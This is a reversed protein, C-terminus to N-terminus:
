TLLDVNMKVHVCECTLSYIQITSTLLDVLTGIVISSLNKKSWVYVGGTRSLTLPLNRPVDLVSELQWTSMQGLLMQGPWMQGDWCLIMFRGFWIWLSKLSFVESRLRTKGMKPHRPWKTKKWCKLIVENKIMKAQDFNSGM